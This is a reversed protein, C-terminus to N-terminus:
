RAAEIRVPPSEANIMVQRSAPGRGVTVVQWARSGAAALFARADYSAGERGCDVALTVLVGEDNDPDEGSKEVRTPCSNGDRDRITLRKSM